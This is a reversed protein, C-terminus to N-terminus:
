GTSPRDMFNHFESPDDMGLESFTLEHESHSYPWAGGSTQQPQT